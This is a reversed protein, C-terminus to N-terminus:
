ESDGEEPIAEFCDCRVIRDDDAHIPSPLGADTREIFKICYDGDRRKAKDKVYQIHRCKKCSFDYKWKPLNSKKKKKMLHIFSWVIMKKVLLLLIVIM